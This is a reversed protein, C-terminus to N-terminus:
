DGAVAFRLLITRQLPNFNDDSILTLLIEGAAGRTVALGEMNDIEYGMDFRGLVEGSIHAGPRVEAAPFRRIQLSVGELPAYHRELLYFNGDPGLALDTADFRGSKAITFTGPTRGGLIFGPLDDQAKAGEEGIAVLAGALAGAPVFVLSELGSNGRLERVAPAPVPKGPKGLPDRPYRWIENVGEMAVYAADPALTLSEVDERGRQAQVRGQADLLAAATVDSLGTPRDGDTDLQGSLFLGADTVALFRGDPGLTFGSIGGFGPFPSTLVLGGRFALPGFRTGEDGIRFTAIPRAAVAIAEPEVPLAGPKSFALSLAAACLAAGAALATATRAVRATRSM